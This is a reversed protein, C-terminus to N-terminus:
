NNDDDRGWPMAVAELGWGNFFTIDGIERMLQAASSIRSRPVLLIDDPRLFFQAAQLGYDDMNQLDFRHALLRQEERRFVITSSVVAEQTYGGVEALAQMVNIPRDVQVIGPNLVEGLVYINNGAQEHLFLDAELGDVIKQYDRTIEEELEAITKQAAKYEGVLPFTVYGDPRVNVLKSLGRASTELDNRIQEVRANFNEIKVYLEPSQLVGTYAQKLEDALESSTKGVVEIKGIYPLTITGDPLVAQTENLEPADLFTVNITHYLNIKYEPQRDRELHYVIDLVDGPSIYYNEFLPYNGVGRLSALQVGPIPDALRQDVVQVHSGDYPEGDATMGGTSTTCATLLGAAVVALAGGHLGRPM